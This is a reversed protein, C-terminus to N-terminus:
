RFFQSKLRSTSLPLGFNTKTTLSFLKPYAQKLIEKYLYQNWRYQRPVNLIFKVWETALFPAQCNYEEFLVIPKIYCQQRVAFDLQEDYSLTSHKLLPNPPLLSEVQFGPPTLRVTKSFRERAVFKQTALEWSNSDVSLLHSGAFPDGMFGSWYMKDKGFKSWIQGFLYDIFVTSPRGFRMAFQVLKETDWPISSLDITEYRLGTAHAVKQGIEFDWTKPLGITILQIQSSDLNKLLGGLIGRSDLGGSLPLIHGNHNLLKTVSNTISTDLAKIGDKVLGKIECHKQMPLQISEKAWVENTSVLVDESTPVYGFHLYIPISASDLM